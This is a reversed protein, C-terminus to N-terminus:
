DANMKRSMIYDLIGLVIIMYGFTEACEEIVRKMSREYDPGFVTELFDGHGIMQAFPITMMFGGWITGFSRHLVFGRLQGLLKVRNKFAMWVGTLFLLHFPLHWGAVPIWTDFDHDLERIVALLCFIGLTRVLVACESSRSAAVFALVAGALMILLQAMELPSGETFLGKRHHDAMKWVIVISAFTVVTYVAYIAAVALITRYGREDRFRIKPSTPDTPNM